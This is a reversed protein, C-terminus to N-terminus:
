NGISHFKALSFRNISFCNFLFLIYLLKRVPDTFDTTDYNKEQFVRYQEKFEECIQEVQKDLIKGEIGGLAVKELKIFETYTEM